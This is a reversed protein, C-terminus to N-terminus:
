CPTGHIDNTNFNYGWQEVKVGRKWRRGGVYEQEVKWRCVGTGGGYKREVEM